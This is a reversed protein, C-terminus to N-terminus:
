QEGDQVNIMEQAMSHVGAAGADQMAKSPSYPRRWLQWIWHRYPCPQDDDHCPYVHRSV